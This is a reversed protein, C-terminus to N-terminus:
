EERRQVIEVTGKAGAVKLVARIRRTFDGAVGTAEVRFYRTPPSVTILGSIAAYVDPTMGPVARLEDVLVFPQERRRAVIEAALAADIRESLSQLVEVPAYNIDVRGDGYVTLFERLGPVAPRGREPEAPRGNFVEADVGKVLLLEEISDFPANKCRRPPDLRDYDNAEAGENEGQVSPLVTVDDDEDAWDIIAAVIAYSIPTAVGPAANLTDILRLMQSVRRGDLKGDPSKLRNINIRGGEGTLTLICSADGVAVPAGGSLLRATEEDPAREKQNRAIAAAISLGAEAAALAQRDRTANATAELDLRAEYNFEVLVAALLLVLLLVAILIMGGEGARRIRYRRPIM